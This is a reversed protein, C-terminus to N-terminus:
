RGEAIGESPKHEVHMLILEVALNELYMQKFRSAPMVGADRIMGKPYTYAHVYNHLPAAGPQAVDYVDVTVDARGEYVENMSGPRYVQIGSLSVEMVYDAGLKKGWGTPHMAKWTPHAIKFKDVEAAPVFTIKEKGGSGKIVDPCRKVILAALDRDATAFDIPPTRTFGCFVAVKVEDKKKGTEEDDKPPLPYAAPIRADRHALFGIMTLPNCGITLVAALTGWVARRGWKM